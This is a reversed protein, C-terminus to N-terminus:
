CGCGNTTTKIQNNSCIVNCRNLKELFRQAEYLNGVQSNYNIVNIFMWILDRDSMQKSLEPTICKEYGGGLKPLCSLLDKVLVNFCKNLRPILFTNKDSRIITNRSSPIQNYIQAFEVETSTTPGWRYFKNNEPNYYYVDDYMNFNEEVALVHDVWAKIPLIIHSIRYLGDKSLSSEEQRDTCCAAHDVVTYKEFSEVGEASLTSITNVTVSHDWRYAGQTVSPNDESLYQNDDSELGEILLGFEGLKSIKFQSIM